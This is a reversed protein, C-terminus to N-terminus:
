ALCPRPKYYAYFYSEQSDHSAMHMRTCTKEGSRTFLGKKASPDGLAMRVQEVRTTKDHSMAEPCFDLSCSHRWVAKKQKSKHEHLQLKNFPDLESEFIDPSFHWFSVVLCIECASAARGASQRGRFKGRRSNVRDNVQTGCLLGYHTGPSLASGSLWTSYIFSDM